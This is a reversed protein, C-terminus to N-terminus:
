PSAFEALAAFVRNEAPKEAGTVDRLGLSCQAALLVASHAASWSAAATACRGPDADHLGDVVVFPFAARQARLAQFFAAFFQAQEEPSSQAAPDSPYSVQQLVLPPPNSGLWSPPRAALAATLAALDDAVLSPSRASFDAELPLYSVAVVDGADILEALRAPPALLGQASVAVGVRTAAGLKAHSRAYAIAHLAQETFGAADANAALYRDVDAGFTLYALDEGFVALAQDILAEIATRTGAGSWPGNLTAPRADLVGDVLSLSLLVASEGAYLSAGTALPAFAAEVPTGAATTLTDWRAVLSLARSGAARADIAARAAATADDDLSRPTPRIGVRVPAPTVPEVLAGGVGEPGSGGPHAADAGADPVVM